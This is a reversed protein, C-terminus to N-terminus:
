EAQRLAERVKDAGAKHHVKVGREQALAHLADSEMKDLDVAVAEPKTPAPAPAVPAVPAPETARMDRTMYSGHGLKSLVDAYRRNMSRQRGNAYQFEVNM